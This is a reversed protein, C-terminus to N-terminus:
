GKLEAVRGQKAPVGGEQEHPSTLCTVSRGALWRLRTGQGPRASSDPAEPDMM